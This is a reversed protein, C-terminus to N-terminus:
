CRNTQIVGASNVRAVVGPGNVLSLFVSIRSNPGAAFQSERFCVSIRTSTWNSVSVVSAARCVPKPLGTAVLLVPWDAHTSGASSSFGNRRRSCISGPTESNLRGRTCVASPLPAPTKTPSVTVM